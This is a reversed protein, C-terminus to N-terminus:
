APLKTYQTVKDGLNQTEQSNFEKTKKSKGEASILSGPDVQKTNLNDIELGDVDMDETAHGHRPKQTFSKQFISPVFNKLALPRSQIFPPLQVAIAADMLAKNSIVKQRLLHM